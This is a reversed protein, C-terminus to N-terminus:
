KALNKLADGTLRQATWDSMLKAGLSLYFDIASKNWDLVSWELRGCDRDVTLKALYTLLTKGYGKNRFEARVYLDELYIGPKGLFTSYTHFFLAMGVKVQDVELFIVEAYKKSGFLSDRLRDETAEVEHELKEFHALEKIFKLIDPIDVKEAFVIKPKM